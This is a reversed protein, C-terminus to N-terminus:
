VHVTVFLLFSLFWVVMARHPRCVVVGRMAVLDLFYDFGLALQAQLQVRLAPPRPRCLLLVMLAVVALDRWILAALPLGYSPSGPLHLLRTQQLVDLNPFM